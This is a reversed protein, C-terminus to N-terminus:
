LRMWKMLQELMGLREQKMPLYQELDHLLDKIRDDGEYITMALLGGANKVIYIHRIQHKIDIDLWRCRLQNRQFQQTDRILGLGNIDLTTPKRILIYSYFIYTGVFIITLIIAFFNSTRFMLWFFIALLFGAIAFRYTNRPYIAGHAVSYSM